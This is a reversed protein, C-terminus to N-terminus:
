VAAGRQVLSQFLAALVVNLDENQEGSKRVVTQCPASSFIGLFVNQFVRRVSNESSVTHSPSAAEGSSLAPKQIGRM